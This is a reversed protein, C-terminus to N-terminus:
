GSRGRARRAAARSRSCARRARLARVPGRRERRAAARVRRRSTAARRARDPGRGRRRRGGDGAPRPPLQARRPRRLARRPRGRALGRLLADLRGLLLELVEERDRVRGDITRLSAPAVKADLPLQERTQNVNLGIGLVVVGEKAEALIGAVKRRALLVDNPWKIQASLGTADEVALAVAVAAVLSLEQARREARRGCCCRSSSRRGRRRSGAAGSGGAAPRRTTPRRSRARRTTPGLSAGADVRM